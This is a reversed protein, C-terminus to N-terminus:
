LNALQKIRAHASIELELFLGYMSQSHLTDVEADYRRSARQFGVSM